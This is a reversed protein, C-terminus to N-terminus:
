GCKEAEDRLSFGLKTRGLLLVDDTQLKHRGSIPVGNVLTGRLAGLDRVFVLGRERRLACHRAAVDSIGREQAHGLSTALIALTLAVGWCLRVM